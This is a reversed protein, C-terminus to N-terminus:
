GKRVFIILVCIILMIIIIITYDPWGCGAGIDSLNSQCGYACSTYITENSWTCGSANCEESGSVSALINGTLCFNGTIVAPIRILSLTIIRDIDMTISDISPFYGALGSEIDHPTLQISNNNTHNFQAIFFSTFNQTLNVILNNQYDYIIFTSNLPNFITLNWFRVVFSNSDSVYLGDDSVNYLELISNDGAEIVSHVDSNNIQVYSNTRSRAGIEDGDISVNNALCISNSLCRLTIDPSTQLNTSKLVSNTIIGNAEYFYISRASLTNDSFYIDNMSINNTNEVVIGILATENPFDINNIIANDCNRPRFGYFGSTESIVINEFDPSLSNQAYLGYNGNTNNILINKIESNDSYTLYIGKDTNGISNINDLYCNDCYSIYLGDDANNESNINIFRGNDDNSIIFGFDGNDKIEIDTFNCYHCPNINIGDDYNNNSTVNDFIVNKNILWVDNFMSIGRSLTDQTIFGNNEVIINRLTLNDVDFINIGKYGNNSIIVNTIITNNLQQLDIPRCDTGQCNLITVNDITLNIIRQFSLGNNTNNFAEINRIETNNCEGIGLPNYSFSLNCNLITLNNQYQSIISNGNDSKINFGKCDFIVSSNAIDICNGSSNISQNLEYYGSQDINQCDSVITASIVNNQIIFLGLYTAWFGFICALVCAKKNMKDNEGRKVGNEANKLLEEVERRLFM